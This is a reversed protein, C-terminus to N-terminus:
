STAGTARWPRICRGSFRGDNGYVRYLEQYATARLDADAMRVLSMLEGRTMEKEEGDVKVKFTYRNTFADYLMTLANAAPSM